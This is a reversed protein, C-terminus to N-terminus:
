SLTMGGALSDSLGIAAMEESGPPTGSKWHFAFDRLWAEVLTTFYDHFIRKNGFEPDYFALIDVTNFSRIPVSPDPATNSFVLIQAPNVFIGFQVGSDRMYGLLQPVGTEASNPRTKVEAVLVPQENKDVGTIDVGRVRRISRIQDAM